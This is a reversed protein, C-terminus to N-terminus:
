LPPFEAEAYKEIEVLHVDILTNQVMNGSYYRAFQGVSGYRAFESATQLQRYSKFIVSHQPHHALYEERIAHSTHHRSERAALREVLHLAAYFAVITAWREEQNGLGGNSDLFKRNLKYKILHEEPTPM